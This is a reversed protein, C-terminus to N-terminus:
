RSYSVSVIKKSILKIRKYVLEEAPSRAKVGQAKEKEADEKLEKEMEKKDAVLDSPLEERTPAVAVQATPTSEATTAQTLGGEVPPTGTQTKAKKGKKNKSKSAASPDAGPIYKAVAAVASQVM